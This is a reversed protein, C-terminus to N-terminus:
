GNTQEEPIPPFITGLDIELDKYKVNKDQCVTRYISNDDLINVDIVRYEPSVIWYEKIGM